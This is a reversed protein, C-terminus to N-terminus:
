TGAVDEIEYCYYGEKLLFAVAYNYSYTQGEITVPKYNKLKLKISRLEAIFKQRQYPLIFFYFNDFKVIDFIMTRRQSVLVLRSKNRIEWKGSDLPLSGSCGVETKHFTFNSDLRYSYAWFSGSLSFHKVIDAPSILDLHDLGDINEYVCNHHANKQAFGM